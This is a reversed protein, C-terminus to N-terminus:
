EGRAELEARLASVLDGFRERNEESLQSLIEHARLLHEQSERSPLDQEVQTPTCPPEAPREDVAELVRQLGLEEFLARVSGSPRHVSVESRPDKTVVDHLTGMFASDLYTCSGLDVVLRRDARRAEEALRHFADCHTWQGHGRVAVYTTAEDEAIWLVPSPAAGASRAPTAPSDPPENDFSSPGSGAELVLLTVDDRGAGNGGHARVRRDIDGFLDRLRGPAGSADGTLAPVV